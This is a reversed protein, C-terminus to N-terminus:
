GNAVNGVIGYIPIIVAFAILAVLGGIFLLLMPELIVPLKQATDNAKKEYIDAVKLMIKSLSGTKEGTMVLQQVSPPLYGTSGRILTFSKGFSDGVTIHELLHRYFRRYGLLTTVQALSQLADTLPVGARLLGGLIVGFRAITAERLLAGIGPIRFVLWQFPERVYSVTKNLVGLLIFLGIAAPVAVAAYNTFLNTFGIVLRTVLPLEVNLSLLVSILNPLVFLGLGMVIVFLMVLVISPYIMAMKVKGRLAQDKEQQASLYEMNEALSGAEEGIRVLALADPTFFHEAEMARWLASGNEVAVILRQILKKVTRRRTELQLTKLSDILPLGANLMTALNQILLYREKGLGFLELSRLMRAWVGGDSRRRVKPAPDERRATEAPVAPIAEEVPAIEKRM